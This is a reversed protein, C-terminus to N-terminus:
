RENQGAQPSMRSEDGCEPCRVAGGVAPSGTLRYGCGPCCTREFALRVRRSRGWARANLGYLVGMVLLTAILANQLWGRWLVVTRIEPGNRVMSALDARGRSELWEAVVPRVEANGPGVAMHVVRAMVPAPWGSRDIERQFHVANWPSGPAAMLALSDTSEEDLDVVYWTGDDRQHFLLTRWFSEVVREPPQGVWAVMFMFGAIAVLGLLPHGLRHAAMREWVRSYGSVRHVVGARYSLGRRGHVLEPNDV